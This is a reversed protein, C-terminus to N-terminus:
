SSSPPTPPDIWISTGTFGTHGFGGLHKGRPRSFGTRADQAPAPRRARLAPPSCRWRRRPRAGQRRRRAAHPTSPSTPPPPSCGPTGPSAASPGGACTTM